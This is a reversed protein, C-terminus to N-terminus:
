GGSNPGPAGGPAGGGPAPTQGAPSPTRSVTTPAQPPVVQSNPGKKDFHGYRPNVSIKTKDIVENFWTSLRDQGAAVAKERVQAAVQDYPPTNRSRVLILHFGFQTQVPAGVQGVPQSFMAQAFEPVLQNDRGYCGLDGGKSASGTDKSASKAVAGFDEGKDLRAKTADAEEKSGLLIHSVCAQAFEDQHADYYAHSAKEPTGQNLLSFLLVSVEASRRVLTDQYPKAFANLVQDGGVRQSVAARAAALDEPAVVLRRRVIDDHVIQFVIQRTLVLATFSADFTGRGTGRVPEQSEVRKLYTDNSAIDRLEGDLSGRTIQKGGVTAADSSVSSCATVIVAVLATLALVSLRSAPRPWSPHSRRM